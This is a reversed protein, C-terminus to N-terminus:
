GEDEDEDKMMPGMGRVAKSQLVQSIFTLKQEENSLIGTRSFVYLLWRENFAM